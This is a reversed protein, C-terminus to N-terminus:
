CKWCILLRYRLEIM